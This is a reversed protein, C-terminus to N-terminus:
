IVISSSLDSTFLVVRPIQSPCIRIILDIEFYIDLFISTLARIWLVLCNKINNNNKNKVISTTLICAFRHILQFRFSPFWLIKGVNGRFRPMGAHQGGGSSAFTPTRILKTLQAAPYEQYARLAPAQNLYCYRAFSPLLILERDIRAFTLEIIRPSLWIHNAAVSRVATILNNPEDLTLAYGWGGLLMAKVQQDKSICGFALVQLTQDLQIIRKAVSSSSVNSLMHALIIV